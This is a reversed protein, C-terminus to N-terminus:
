QATVYGDSRGNGYQQIVFFTNIIMSVFSITGLQWFLFNASQTM